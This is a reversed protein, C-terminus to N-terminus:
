ASAPALADRSTCAISISRRSRAPAPLSAPRRPCRAAATRRRAHADVERRQPGGGARQQDGVQGVAHGRRHDHVRQRDALPEAHHHLALDGVAQEGLGRVCPRRRRRPAPAARGAPPQRMRGTDRRTNEGTGRTSEASTANSRRGADGSPGSQGRSDCTTCPANAWRRLVGPWSAPAPRAAPAAASSAPSRASCSAGSCNRSSRTVASRRGGLDVEHQPDPRAAPRRSGGAPWATGPSRGARRSRAALRGGRGADLAERRCAPSGPAPPQQALRPPHPQVLPDRDRGAQAAARGVRGRHQAREGVGAVTSSSYAIARDSPESTGKKRDPRSVASPVPRPSRSCGSGSKGRSSRRAHQHRRPSPQRRGVHVRGAASRTNSATRPSRIRPTCVARPAGPTAASTPSRGAAPRSRRQPGLEGVHDGLQAAAARQRGRDRAAARGHERDHGVPGGGLPQRRM